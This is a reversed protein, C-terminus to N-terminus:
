RPDSYGCLRRCRPSGFYPSGVRSACSSTGTTRDASMGFSSLQSLQLLRAKVKILEKIRDVVVFHDNGSPAKTVLVEDGTRLWRGDHHHVFTEATARENNMYGLVVSPSQVLLEGPRDYETIENGEPDVIKARFGPLLSGSSRAMVDHESTSSVVVASETMGYAQVVTWTPYIQLLEEITEEGLPAAGSYVLRVSSLNYKRCLDRSQLM